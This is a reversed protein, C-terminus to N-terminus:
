DAPQEGPADAVRLWERRRRWLNIKTHMVSPRRRRRASERQKRKRELLRSRMLDLELRRRAAQVDPNEAGPKFKLRLKTFCLEPPVNRSPLGRREQVEAKLMQGRVSRMRTAKVPRTIHRIRRDWTRTMPPLAPSTRQLLGVCRPPGVCQRCLHWPELPDFWATGPQWGDPKYGPSNTFFANVHPMKPAARIVPRPQEIPMSEM